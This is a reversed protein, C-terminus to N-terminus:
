SIEIGTAGDRKRRKIWAGVGLVSLVLTGWVSDPEPVATAPPDTALFAHTEGDIVGTGVIQGDKNIAYANQLTWGSDAPILSNLDILDGDRYLFAHESGANTASQGVIQGLDNIGYASSSNGGLTGLDALNGNNDIFAHFSKDDATQSYGVVQSLNNIGRAVSSKGGLTGLDSLAGGTYLFAHEDSGTTYSGGVM